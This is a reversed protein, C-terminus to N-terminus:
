VHGRILLRRHHAEAEATLEARLHQRAYEREADPTFLETLLARLQATLTAPAPAQVRAARIPRLARQGARIVRYRRTPSAPTGLAPSLRTAHTLHPAPTLQTM